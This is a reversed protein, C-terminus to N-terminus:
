SIVEIIYMFDSFDQFQIVDHSGQLVNFLFEFNLYKRDNQSETIRRVMHSFVQKFKVSLSYADDILRCSWLSVFPSELFKIIVFYINSHMKSFSRCLHSLFYFIKNVFFTSSLFDAFLVHQNDQSFTLQLSSKSHLPIPLQFHFQDIGFYGCWKWSVIVSIQRSRVFCTCGDSVCFFDNVSSGVWFLTSRVFKNIENSYCILFLKILSKDWITISFSEIELWFRFVRNFKQKHLESLYEGSQAYQFNKWSLPFMENSVIHRTAVYSSFKTTKILHKHKWTRQVEKSIDNLLITQNNTM